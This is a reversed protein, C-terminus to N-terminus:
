FVGLISGLFEMSVELIFYSFAMNTSPKRRRFDLNVNLDIKLDKM